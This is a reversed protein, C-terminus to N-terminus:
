KGFVRLLICTLWDANVRQTIDKNRANQCWMVVKKGGRCKVLQTCTAQDCDLNGGYNLPVIHAGWSVKIVPRNQFLEVHEEQISM